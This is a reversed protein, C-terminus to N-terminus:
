DEEIHQPFYAELTESCPDNLAKSWEATFNPTGPSLPKDELDFLADVGDSMWHEDGSPLHRVAFGSSYEIVAFMPPEVYIEDTGQHDVQEAVHFLWRTDKATEEQFVGVRGNTVQRWKGPFRVEAIGAATELVTVPQNHADLLVELPGNGVQVNFHRM